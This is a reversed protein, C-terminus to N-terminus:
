DLSPQHKRRAATMNVPLRAQIRTSGLDLAKLGEDTLEQVRALLADLRDLSEWDEEGEMDEFEKSDEGLHLGLGVLSSCQRDISPSSPIRCDKGEGDDDRLGSPDRPPPPTRLYESEPSEPTPAYWDVSMSSLSSSQTSLTSIYSIRSLRSPDDRPRRARPRFPWQSHTHHHPHSQTQIPPIIPLPEDPTDLDEAEDESIIPSSVAQLILM